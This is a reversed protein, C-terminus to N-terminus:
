HGRGIGILKGRLWNIFTDIMIVMTIIILAAYAIDEWDTGVLQNPAWGPWGPEGFLM